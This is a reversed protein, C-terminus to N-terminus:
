LLDFEARQHAEVRHPNLGDLLWSLERLSLRLPGETPRAPWWFRERELRRYWLWFGNNHWYLIKLKDRGRNCFVFLHSSLPDAALVDVVLAVLGDIQKRMDTAGAALYVQTQGGFGIM